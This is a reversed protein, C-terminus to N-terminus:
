LNNGIIQRLDSKNTEIIGHNGELRLTSRNGPGEVLASSISSPVIADQIGEILLIDLKSTKCFDSFDQDRLDILGKELNEIVLGENKAEALDASKAFDSIIKEPSNKLGRLM